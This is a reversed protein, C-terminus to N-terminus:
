QQAIFVEPEKLEIASVTSRRRVTVRSPVPYHEIENSSRGEKARKKRLILKTPLPQMMISMLSSAVYALLIYIQHNPYRYGGINPLARAFIHKLEVRIGQRPKYIISYFCVSYSYTPGTVFILHLLIDCHFCHLSM